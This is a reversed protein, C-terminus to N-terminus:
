LVQVAGACTLLHARGGPSATPKSAGVELVDSARTRACFGPSPTLACHRSQGELSDQGRPGPAWGGCGRSGRCQAGATWVGLLQPCVRRAETVNNEESSGFHPADRTTPSVSKGSSASGVSFGATGKGRCRDVAADWSGPTGLICLFGWCSATLFDHYKPPAASFGERGLLPALPGPPWRLSCPCLHSRSGSPRCPGLRM